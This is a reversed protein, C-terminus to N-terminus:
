SRRWFWLLIVGVVLAAFAAANLIDLGSGLWIAYLVLAAAGLVLTPVPVRERLSEKRVPLSPEEYAPPVSRAPERVVVRFQSRRTGYGTIADIDFFGPYATQRIPIRVEEDGDIYLNEHYFDTFMTSNSSSLTIHLPSGHNILRLVLDDGIPTEIEAPVEISNIGRRNLHIEHLPM